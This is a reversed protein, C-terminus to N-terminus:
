SLFGQAELLARKGIAGLTEFLKLEEETETSYRGDLAKELWACVALADLYFLPVRSQFFHKRQLALQM